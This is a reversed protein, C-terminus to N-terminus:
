HNIPKDQKNYWNYAYKNQLESAEKLKVSNNYYNSEFKSPKLLSNREKKLYYNHYIDPYVVKFKEEEVRLRKQRVKFNDLYHKWEEKKEEDKEKYYKNSIKRLNKELDKKNISMVGLPLMGYYLYDTQLIYQKFDKMFHIFAEKVIVEPVSIRKSVERFIDQTFYIEKKLEGKIM